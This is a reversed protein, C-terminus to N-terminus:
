WIVVLICCVKDIQGKSWAARALNTALVFDNCPISGHSKERFVFSKNPSSFSSLPGFLCSAPPLQLFRNGSFYYDLIWMLSPWVHPQSPQVFFRNGSFFILLRFGVEFDVNCTLHYHSNSSDIVLFSLYDLYRRLCGVGHPKPTDSWERMCWIISIKPVFLFVIWVWVRRM